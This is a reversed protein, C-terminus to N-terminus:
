LGMKKRWAQEEEPTKFKSVLPPADPEVPPRKGRATSHRQNEEDLTRVEDVSKWQWDFRVSHIAKGLKIPTMVVSVTGYDNIENVAPTIVSREFAAWRNYTPKSTVDFLVRLEALEFIWTPRGLRKKDALIAYLRRAHGSLQHAATTEIKAFTDPMRLARIAAPPILIRAMSGGQTIHWEAIISAGWPNGRYEGSITVRNLRDLCRRLWGNDDRGGEGRLRKTPIELWVSNSAAESIRREDMFAAIEWLAAVMAPALPESARPAVLSSPIYIESM